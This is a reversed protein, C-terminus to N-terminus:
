RKNDAESTPRVTKWPDASVKAPAQTKLRKMTENYARENEIKEKEEREYKLQLPDKSEGSVNFQAYAPGAIAMAMAAAFVYRM